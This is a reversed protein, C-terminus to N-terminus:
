EEVTLPLAGVFFFFFGPLLRVKQLFLIHPQWHAPMQCIITSSGPPKPGQICCKHDWCLSSVWWLDFSSSASIMPEPCAWCIPDKSVARATQSWAQSEEARKGFVWKNSFLDQALMDQLCNRSQLLDWKRNTQRRVTTRRLCFRM